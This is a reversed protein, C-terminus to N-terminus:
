KTEKLESMVLWYDLQLLEDKNLIKGEPLRHRLYYHIGKDGVTFYISQRNEPVNIGLIESLISATASHGIVSLWESNSLIERAETPSIKKFYVIAEKTSSFDIPVILSNLLYVAM